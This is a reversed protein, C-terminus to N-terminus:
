ILTIKKGTYLSMFYHGGWENSPGLSIGPVRRSKMTNTTKTFVWAYSGFLIQKNNFDPLNQGAVIGTPSVTSSTSEKTPLSNLWYIISEVLM